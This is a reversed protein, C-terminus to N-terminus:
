ISKLMDKISTCNIRSQLFNSHHLLLITRAADSDKVFKILASSHDLVLYISDINDALQKNKEEIFSKIQIKNTKDSIPYIAVVNDTRKASLLANVEKRELYAPSDSLNVSIKHENISEGNLVLAAEAEEHSSFIVFACAHHLHELIAFQRKPLRVEEITGFKSFIEKIKTIDLMDKPLNRLIIERRELVPADSRKTKLEPDSKKAVMKFGDIVKGNLEQVAKHVNEENAVDVYAFRRNSNFRLSPLRVNLAVIEMSKFLERIDRQNYKPPYNTLWVTCDKLPTVEITNNGMTKYTKTLASQAAEATAFEIRAMQCRIKEFWSEYTNVQIVQGCDAFYKKIKGQNYSRPINQVLVTCEDRLRKPQKPNGM